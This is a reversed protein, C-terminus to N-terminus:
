TRILEEVIKFENMMRTVGLHDVSWIAKVNAREYESM